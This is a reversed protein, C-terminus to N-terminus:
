KYEGEHKRVDESFLAHILFSQQSRLGPLLYSFDTGQLKAKQTADVLLVGTM